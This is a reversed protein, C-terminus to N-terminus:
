IDNQCMQIAKKLHIKKEYLARGSIAGVLNKHRNKLISQLDELSSLGGSLIFELSFLELFEKLVEGPGELTGDRSIDTFIIKQVGIKELQSLFNEVQLSSKKEWGSIRVTGQFVDVGVMIKNPGYDAIAKELYKPRTIAATGIICRQIGLDFCEKLTDMDRIGGGLEVSMKTGATKVITQIAKSNEKREGTRAANLDVLHLHKAGAEQFEHVKHSLSDQYVTVKDYKGQYLRVIHSDLLDIAPIFHFFSHM